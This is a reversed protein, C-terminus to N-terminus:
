HFKLRNMSMFIVKTFLPSFTCQALIFHSTHQKYITINTDKRLKNQLLGIICGVIGRSFLELLSVLTVPLFKPRTNLDLHPRSQIHRAIVSMVLVAQSITSFKAWLVKLNDGTLKLAGQSCENTSQQYVGVGRWSAFDTLLHEHWVDFMPLM